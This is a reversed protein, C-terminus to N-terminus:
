GGFGMSARLEQGPRAVKAVGHNALTCQGPLKVGRRQWRRMQRYAVLSPVGPEKKEKKKKGGKM